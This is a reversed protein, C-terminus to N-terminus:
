YPPPPLSLYWVRGRHASDTMRRSSFGDRNANVPLFLPSLTCISFMKCQLRKAGRIHPLRLNRIPICLGSRDQLVAAM